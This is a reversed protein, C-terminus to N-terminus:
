AYARSGYIDGTLEGATYLMYYASDRGFKPLILIGQQYPSGLSIDLNGWELTSGNQMIQHQPGVVKDCNSYFQLQGTWNCINGNCLLFDIPKSQYNVTPPLTSFDLIFGDKGPIKGEYDIGSIWQFDRMRDQQYAQALM